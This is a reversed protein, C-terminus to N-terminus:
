TARNWSELVVGVAGDATLETCRSLTPSLWADGGEEAAQRAAISRAADENPARVVFGFM